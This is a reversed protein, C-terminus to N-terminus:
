APGLSLLGLGMAKAPGIGGTLAAQLAPADSVELVGNFLVTDITIRAGGSRQRTDLRAKCSCDAGNIRFGHRDGQRQLWELQEASDHLGWRRGNRKVAPNARLRFRFTRGPQVVSKLDIHKTQVPELLYGARTDISDWQGPVISQVLVSPAALAAADELRWLFRAVGSGDETVFARSLTRHMEYADALDRRGDTKTPDPKLLSLYM